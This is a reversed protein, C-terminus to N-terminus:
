QDSVNANLWDRLECAMTKHMTIEYHQGFHLSIYLTHEGPNDAKWVAGEVHGTIKERPVIAVWANRVAEIM